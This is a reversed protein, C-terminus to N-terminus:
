KRISPCLCSWYFRFISRIRRACGHYDQSKLFKNNSWMMVLGAIVAICVIIETMLHKITSGQGLDLWVDTSTTVLIVLLIITFITKQKDNEM